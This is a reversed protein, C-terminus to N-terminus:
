ANLREPAMYIPCGVNESHALSNDLFGAIGFDCIKGVGDM